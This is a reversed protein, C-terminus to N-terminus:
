KLDEKPIYLPNGEPVRNDKASEIANQLAAFEDYSLVPAGESAMRIHPIAPTDDEDPAFMSEDINNFDMPTNLFEEEAAAREAIKKKLDESEEKSIFEMEGTDEGTIKVYTINGDTGQDDASIVEVVMEDCYDDVDRHMQNLIEYTLYPMACNKNSCKYATFDNNPEIWSGCLSCRLAEENGSIKYMYAYDLFVFQGNDRKGINCYNKPTTGLDQMVYRRSLYELKERIQVKNSEFEELSILNLYEAVAILRNTEYVKALLEPEEISRLYESMNDICGREDMAIKFVYGNKLFVIRNSGVGVEIFGLPTLRANILEAIHNVNSSEDEDYVGNVCEYLFLKLDNDFYESIRSGRRSEGRMKELIPNERFKLEDLPSLKM